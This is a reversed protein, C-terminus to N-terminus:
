GRRLSDYCLEPETADAKKAFSDVIKRDKTRGPIADPLERIYLQHSKLFPVV